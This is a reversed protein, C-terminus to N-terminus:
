EAVCWFQLEAGSTPHYVYHLGTFGHDGFQNAIGRASMFQHLVSMIRETQNPQTVFVNLSPSSGMESMYQVHFELDAYSMTQPMMATQTLTVTGDREIPVTVSSRYATHCTIPQVTQAGAGCAVLAMLAALGAWRFSHQLLRM